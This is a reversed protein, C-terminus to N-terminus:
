PLQRVAGGGAEDRPQQGERLIVKDGAPPSWFLPWGCHSDFKTDSRFPEAGCVRCEYAGTTKTETYEGTWPREIGAQRLV